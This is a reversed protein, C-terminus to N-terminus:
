RGGENKMMLFTLKVQMVSFCQGILQRPGGVKHGRKFLFMYLSFIAFLQSKNYINWLRSIKEGTKVKLLFYQFPFKSLIPSDIDAGGRILFKYKKIRM